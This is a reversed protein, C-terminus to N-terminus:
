QFSAPWKEDKKKIAEKVHELFGSFFRDEGFEEARARITDPHFDAEMQEFALIAQCLSEVTQDHFFIGSKEMEVTETVGGKGYAIVPLGSAMAEVPAIGFDEEGPFLLAKAGGLTEAIKKENLWGTFHITSGALKKLNAKEEGDGIIVLKRGLRNCAQIALDIRKYATLRSLCIYYEGGAKPKVRFNSIKVPPHVVSAKRRWHKWVRKAVTQSNALFSDVRFSSLVDARRLYPLFMKMGTKKLLGSKEMYAPWHDWLYRMPTHCYCIHLSDSSTVVGKAPGSESSIVLDYGTLDLQELAAPMLPLYLQYHTKAFPLNNIFTTRINRSALLPSLKERALVHTFLDAQPYLRCLAELVKEGGGMGVLWYHVLAVRM